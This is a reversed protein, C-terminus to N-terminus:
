VQLQAAAWMEYCIVLHVLYNNMIFETSRFFGLVILTTKCVVTSNNTHNQVM